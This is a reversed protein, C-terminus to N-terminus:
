LSTVFRDLAWSVLRTKGSIMVGRFGGNATNYENDNSPDLIAVVQFVSGSAM